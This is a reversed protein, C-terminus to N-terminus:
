QTKERSERSQDKGGGGFPVLARAHNAVSGAHTSYGHASDGCNCCVHAYKCSSSSSPCGRASNFDDCSVWQKVSDRTATSILKPPIQAGRDDDRSRRDRYDDRGRGAQGGRRRYADSVPRDAGGPDSRENKLAPPAGSPSSVGSGVAKKNLAAKITALVSEQVSLMISPSSGTSVSTRIDEIYAVVTPVDEGYVYFLEEAVLALGGLALGLSVDVGTVLLVYQGLLRLLFRSSMDAPFPVLLPKRGGSATDDIWSFHNKNKPLFSNLALMARPNGMVRSVLAPSSFVSIWAAMLDEESPPIGAGEAPDCLKSPRGVAHAALASKSVNLLGQFVDLATFASMCAGADSIAAHASLRALENVTPARAVFGPEPVPVKVLAGAVTSSGGGGPSVNTLPSLLPNVAAGNGGAPTLVLRHTSLFNDLCAQSIGSSSSFFGPDLSKDGSLGSPSGGVRFPLASNSLSPPTTLSPDGSPTKPASSADGKHRKRDPTSSHKGALRKTAAELAAIEAQLNLIRAAKAEAEAQARRSEDESQLRTREAALANDAELQRDREATAAKETEAQENLSKELGRLRDREILLLGEDMMSSLSANLEPLVTAAAEELTDGLAPPRPSPAPPVSSVPGSPPGAALSSSSRPTIMSSPLLSKPLAPAESVVKSTMKESEKRRKDKDEAMKLAAQSEQLRRKLGEEDISSDLMMPSKRGFAASKGASSMVYSFFQLFFSFM